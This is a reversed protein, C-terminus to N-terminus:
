QIVVLKNKGRAGKEMRFRIDGHELVKLVESLNYSREIEGFFKMPKPDGEYVVEIDYWRAIQRMLVPLPTNNFKFLGNKWALESEVDVEKKMLSGSAQSFVSQEGPRLLVSRGAPDSISSVRIAGNALTTKVMDEDGFAAINFKTGLVTILQGASRVVFPQAKNEHIEFYAEGTIEVTRDNGTFQAPYTLKSAANLWVKTGDSLVIRYQGGKPTSLSMLQSPVQHDPSLIATGDAYIVKDKTVIIGPEGARLNMQEGDALTLTARDTGPAADPILTTNPSKNQGYYDTLLYTVTFVVLLCAVGGIRRWLQITNNSSQQLGAKAKVAHFIRKRLEKETTHAPLEASRDDFADYWTDFEQKETTSLIGELWKKAIMLLHVDPKKEAM